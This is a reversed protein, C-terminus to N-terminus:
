DGLREVGIINQYFSSWPVRWGVVRFRYRGPKLRGYVDSSDFRWYLFTDTLEFTTTETYVLYKSSSTDGSGSTVREKSTVVVEITTETSKYAASCSGIVLSLALVALIIIKKM